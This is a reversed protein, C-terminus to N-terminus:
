IARYKGALLKSNNVEVRHCEVYIFVVEDFHKYQCIILLYTSVLLEDNTSCLFIKQIKNLEVLNRNYNFNFNSKM